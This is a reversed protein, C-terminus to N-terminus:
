VCVQIKDQLKLIEDRHKEDEKVRTAELEEVKVRANELKLDLQQLINQAETDQQSVAAM